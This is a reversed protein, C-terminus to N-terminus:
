VGERMAAAHTLVVRWNKALEEPTWVATAQMVVPGRVSKYDGCNWLVIWRATDVGLLYAYASEQWCWRWFKTTFEEETSPLKRWTNKYSEVEGATPNFADPTARIGDRELHVQTSVGTRLAIMHRKFALDMAEDITMGAMMYEVATEYVFGATFRVTPDSPPYPKEGMGKAMRDLVASLHLGDRNGTPKLDSSLVTGIPFPTWGSFQMRGEM